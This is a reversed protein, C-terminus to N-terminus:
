QDTTWYISIFQPARDGWYKPDGQWLYEVGDFSQLSRMEAGLSSVVLSLKENKLAFEM